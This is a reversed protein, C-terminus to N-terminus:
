TSRHEGLYTVASVLRMIDDDFHGLGLNCRHCLLKRIRGTVHDHDVALARLTGDEKRRVEPKFCIACLGGQAEVM